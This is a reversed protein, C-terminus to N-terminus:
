VLMPLVHIEAAFQERYGFRLSRVTLRSLDRKRSPQITKKGFGGALLTYDEGEVALRQRPYPLSKEAANFAGPKAVEAKVIEAMGEVSAQHFGADDGVHAHREHAM